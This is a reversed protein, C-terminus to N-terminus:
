YKEVKEADIREASLCVHQKKWILNNSKRGGKKKLLVLPLSFFTVQLQLEKEGRQGRM